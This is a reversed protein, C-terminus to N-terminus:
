RKGRIRTSNGGWDDRETPSRVTRRKGRGTKQIADVASGTMRGDEKSGKKVIGKSKGQWERTGDRALKLERRGKKRRLTKPDTRVKPPFRRSKGERCKKSDGKHTNSRQDGGMVPPRRAGAENPRESAPCGHDKIKSRGKAGQDPGFKGCRKQRTAEKPLKATM